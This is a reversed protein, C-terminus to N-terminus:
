KLEFSEGVDLMMSWKGLTAAFTEADERTGVIKGWHYPIIYAPKLVKGAHLAEEANMTYTGGIPLCAVDCRIAEMELIFDTDGAIYASKKQYTVVYGLWNKAQPHFKKGNNYAPVAQIVIPGKEGDLMTESYPRLLQSNKGLKDKLDEPGVELETGKASYFRYDDECFHDYHSHTYCLVDVKKDYASTVEFPDFLITKGGVELLVSAHGLWTIKM